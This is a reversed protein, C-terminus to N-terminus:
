CDTANRGIPTCAVESVLREHGDLMAATHAARHPDIGVVFM